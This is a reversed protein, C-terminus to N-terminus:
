AFVVAALMAAEVRWDCVGAVVTVAGLQVGCSFLDTMDVSMPGRMGAGRLDVAPGRGRSCESRRRAHRRERGALEIVGHGRRPPSTQWGAPSLPCNAAAVDAGM